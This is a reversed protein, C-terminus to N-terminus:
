KNIKKNQNINFCAKMEKKSTGNMTCSNCLLYSIHCQYMDIKNLNFIHTGQEDQVIYLIDYNNKAIEKLKQYKYCELLKYEYWKNRYKFEILYKKGNVTTATADYHGFEDKNLEFSSINKNSLINILIESEKKKASSWTNVIDYTNIKM